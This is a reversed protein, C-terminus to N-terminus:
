TEDSALTKTEPSSKCVTILITPTAAGPSTGGAESTTLSGKLHKWLRPILTLEGLFPETQNVTLSLAEADPDAPCLHQDQLPEVLPGARSALSLPRRPAM